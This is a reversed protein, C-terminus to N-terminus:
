EVTEEVNRDCTLEIVLDVLGHADEETSERLRGLAEQLVRM